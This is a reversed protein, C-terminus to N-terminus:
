PAVERMRTATCVELRVLREEAVAANGHDFAAIYEFTVLRGREDPALDLPVWFSGVRAEYLRSWGSPGAGAGRAKGWLLYAQEIRDIAIVSVGDENLFGSLDAAQRESLLVATGRAGAEHLWRLEAEENFVRAEFVDDLSLPTESGSADPARLEPYEGQGARLVAFRCARPTYVIATAGDLLLSCRKLAEALGLREARRVRLETNM